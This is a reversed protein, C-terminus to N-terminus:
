GIANEGKKVPQYTVEYDDHPIILKSSFPCSHELAIM